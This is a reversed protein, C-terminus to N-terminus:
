KPVDSGANNFKLYREIAEICGQKGSRYSEPCKALYERVNCPDDHRVLSLAFEVGKLFERALGAMEIDNHVVAEVQVPPPITAGCWHCHERRDDNERRCTQCVTTM